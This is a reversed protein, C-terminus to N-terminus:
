YDWQGVQKWKYKVDIMDTFKEDKSDHVMIKGGITLVTEDVLGYPSMTVVLKATLDSSDLYCLSNRKGYLISAKGDFYKPKFTSEIFLYGGRQDTFKVAITDNFTFGEIQYSIASYWVSDMKINGKILNIKKPDSIHILRQNSIANNNLVYDPEKTIDKNDEIYKRENEIMEGKLDAIDNYPSIVLDFRHNNSLLYQEIDENFKFIDDPITTKFTTNKGDKDFSYYMSDIGAHLNIFGEKVFESMRHWFFYSADRNYSFLEAKQDKMRRISSKENYEYKVFVNLPYKLTMSYLPADDKKQTVIEAQSFLSVAYFCLFLAFVSIKRM